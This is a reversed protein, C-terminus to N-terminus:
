AVPANAQHSETTLQRFQVPAMPQGLYFGQAQHCTMATVQNLQEATDVGEATVTLSLAGGMDILAQVIATSGQTDQLDAIFSRDIKLGDFPFSRLYSLSSYGTGFDGMALRLGLAKLRNMGALADISVDLMVGEPIELELRSAEIGSAELVRQVRECLDERQFDPPTLKVSVILGEGWAMAHACAQELMWDTLESILGTSEALPLFAAPALWGREPHQWHVLTEAGALKGTATQYRPQFKLHLEQRRLAHRLDMELKRRELIRENMAPEYFRFQNRGGAKAEYLAVDAFRLLDERTMGDTPSAAVGISTGVNVESEGVPIAQNIASLLRECLAETQRRSMDVAVVVFEDGGLRAVLDSDRVCGRLAKAVERLVTDGAAHGLTDNIPKFRDLDLTLVHLPRDTHQRDALRQELYRNLRHRNALGTLNDHQSIHEIEAKAEIEETIDCVTGQYGVITDGRRVARSAVQCYRLQGQSDTMQCHLPKRATPGAAEATARFLQPDHDLLASFPKGIWQAPAFGTLQSFRESVYVIQQHADTEWIWDSSAESINRFRQESLRLAQQAADIMDAAHRIRRCLHCVILLCLGGLLLLLPMFQILLDKGSEDSRWQLTMGAGQDDRLVLKPSQADEQSAMSATLEHLEFAEGLAALKHEALVDIFLLYSLGNFDAHSSDPRLVAAYVMAPVGAVSFYGLAFDDMLSQKRAQELLTPLDGEIWDTAAIDRQEGEVIAYRTAVDPDVLFVGDLGYTTYLSPGINDGDFAWTLDVPEAVRGMYFYADIWFAYDVLATGIKDRKAEMVRAADVESHTVQRADLTACLYVLALCTLVFLAAIVMVLVRSARRATATHGAAETYASPPATQSM